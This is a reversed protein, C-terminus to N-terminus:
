CLNETVRQSRITGCQNYHSDSGRQRHHRFVIQPAVLSEAVYRRQRGLSLRSPFEVESRSQIRGDPLRREEFISSLM